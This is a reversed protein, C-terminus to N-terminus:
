FKVEKNELDELSLTEQPQSAKSAMERTPHTNNIRDAQADYGNIWPPQQSAMMPNSIKVELAKIQAIAMNLQTQLVQNANKQEELEKQIAHFNAGQKASELYKKAKNVYEQAGMGISEIAHASLNACQEVTFISVARLMDAVNPHNPFLLDIPTGEPVQSQSLTYRHWQSAYRMKDDDTAPRDIINLREGPPHMRIFDVNRCIRRGAQRSAMADDISKAYFIVVQQQGYDVTGFHQGAWNIRQGNPLGALENM